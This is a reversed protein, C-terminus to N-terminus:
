YNNAAIGVINVFDLIHMDSFQETKILEKTGLIDLFAVLSEM